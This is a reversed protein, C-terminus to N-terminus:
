RIGETYSNPQFRFARTFKTSNFVYDFEYQYLMEHLERITTDFRGGWGCCPGLSFGIGRDRGSSRRSSNLSNREPQRIQHPLFTGPKIGPTKLIPSCFWAERQM